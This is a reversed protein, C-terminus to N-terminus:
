IISFGIIPASLKRNCLGTVMVFVMVAQDASAPFQCRPGKDHDTTGCEYAKGYDILARLIQLSSSLYVAGKFRILFSGRRWVKKTSAHMEM